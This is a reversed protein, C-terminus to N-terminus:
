FSLLYIDLVPKAKGPPATTFFWGALAPSVLSEPKIWSNLLDGPISSAVQESIRTQSIGHGSFGPPCCDVPGCLTLCSQPCAYVCVCLYQNLSSGVLSHTNSLNWSFCFHLSLINHYWDSIKLFTERTVSELDTVKRGWHSRRHESERSIYDWTIPPFSRAGNPEAVNEYRPFNWAYDM